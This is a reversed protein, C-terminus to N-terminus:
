ASRCFLFTGVIILLLGFAKKLIAAPLAVAYKAGYWSGLLFGIALLAAALIKVHGNQWYKYTALLGIPPLLMALTTGQAEHQSFKYFIVLAPVLLIGGGVGFLGSLAGIIAGLFLLGLSQM